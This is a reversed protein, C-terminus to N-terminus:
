KVSDVNFRMLPAVPHFLLKRKVGATIQFYKELYRRCFGVNGGSAPAAPSPDLLKRWIVPQECFEEFLIIEIFNELWYM